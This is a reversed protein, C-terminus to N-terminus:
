FLKTRSVISSVEFVYPDKNKMDEKTEWMAKSCEHNAWLVKVLPINKNRLQKIRRDLIETPHEEYALNEAYQSLNSLIIPIRSMSKYNHFISSM